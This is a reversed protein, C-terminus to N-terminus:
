GDEELAASLADGYLEFSEEDDDPPFLAALADMPHADVAEMGLSALPDDLEGGLDEDPDEELAASLVALALDQQEEDILPVAPTPEVPPAPASQSMALTPRPVPTGDGEDPPALLLWAATATAALAIAPVLRRLWARLPSVAHREPIQAATRALRHLTEPSPEEATADFLARLQLEADQPAEERSADDPHRDKTSM